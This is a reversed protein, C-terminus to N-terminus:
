GTFGPIFEHNRQPLSAERSAAICSIKGSGNQVARFVKETESDNVGPIVLFEGMELNAHFFQITM